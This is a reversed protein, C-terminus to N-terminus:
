LRIKSHHSLLNIAGIVVSVTFLRDLYDTGVQVIFVSLTQNLGLGYLLQVIMSSGSSTIGGFLWVTIFSSLLTGPFTILFAKLPLAWTIPKRYLLVGAMFGICLQVPLFYLSYLDVTIGMLFASSFGVIMGAVPGFITATLITGITDLYIPLRLFLALNSLTINLAISLAMITIKLNNTKM